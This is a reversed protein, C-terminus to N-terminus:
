RGELSTFTLGNVTGADSTSGTSNIRICIVPKKPEPLVSNESSLMLVVSAMSPRDEPCEEICLLGLRICRVLDSVPCPGTVLSDVLALQNGEVWLKWTHALLNLNSNNRKGSIIELLLVGFSYVDSKVSLKGNMAYEPSMYGRTGIVIKTSIESQDGSLLRSTGFDSIKPVMEPDLLINAAKLDRHIINFRSDRHLYLVGRAIGIIIDLRMKWALTARQTEDFIFLDLSKNNMYEYVLMRENGDICCGLLRVLNRHQLKSLLLVENMFENLGQSSEMSLKKVAIEQGDNLKGQYVIGFGGEGIKNAFSFNNTALTMSDIDFLPLETDKFQGSKSFYSKIKRKESKKNKWIFCYLSFVLIIIVIIVTTIAIILHAKRNKGADLESSAVRLYLDQGGDIFRTDVLDGTWIVCGSGGNRADFASYAMCSCNRLCKDRCKDLSLSRDVTSNYTDPLKVGPVKYFGDGGNACDLEVKRACGQYTNRMTWESASKPEFGYLCGCIPANNANCLGYPGCQSYIDCQDRPASLFTSWSCVSSDWILRQMYGTENMVARSYLSDPKKTFVYVVEDSTWTFNFNFWGAYTTMEPVGSFRSGVWPGSRYRKTNGDWLFLQPSGHADMENRYEGVSPNDSTLYSSLYWNHGTKLNKGINMGPLLTNTPWDFSQWLINNTNLDTLVLNGSDLLQVSTPNSMSSSNSSWVINNNDDSNSADNHLTLIGNNSISLVASTSNLPSNRNAVWVVMEPSVVFWIGLYRSEGLTFFGLEYIQGASVLTNGNSLNQPQKFSDPAGISSSLLNLVLLLFLSKTM